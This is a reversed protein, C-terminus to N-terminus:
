ARKSRAEKDRANIREKGVRREESRRPQCRWCLDRQSHCDRCEREGHVGATLDREPWWRWLVVRHVADASCRYLDREGSLDGHDYIPLACTQVGTVHGDRIGDKAQYFFGFALGCGMRKAESSSKRWVM